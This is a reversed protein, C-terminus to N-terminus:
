PILGTTLVGDGPTSTRARPHTKNNIGNRNARALQNIEESCPAGETGEPPGGLSRNGCGTKQEQGKGRKKREETQRGQIEGYDRKCDGSGKKRIQGNCEGKLGVKVGVIFDLEPQSITLIRQFGARDKKPFLVFNM